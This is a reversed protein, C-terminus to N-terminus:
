WTLCVTRPDDGAGTVTTGDGQTTTLVHGAGVSVAKRHLLEALVARDDAEDHDSLHLHVVPVGDQYGVQAGASQEFLPTLAPIARESYYLNARGDADMAWLCTEFLAKDTPKIVATLLTATIAGGEPACANAARILHVMPHDLHDTM